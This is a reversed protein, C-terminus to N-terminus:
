QGVSPRRKFERVVDLRLVLRILATLERRQRFWVIATTKNTQSIWCASLVRYCAARTLLSVSLVRLCISTHLEWLRRKINDPGIAVGAVNKVKINVRLIKVVLSM